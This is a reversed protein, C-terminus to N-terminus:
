SEYRQEADRRERLVVRLEFDRHTKRENVNMGILRGQGAEVYETTAAAEDVVDARDEANLGIEHPVGLATALPKSLVALEQSIHAAVQKGVHEPGLDLLVGVLELGESLGQKAGRM